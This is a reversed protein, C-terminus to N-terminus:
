RCEIADRIEQQAVRGDGSEDIGNESEAPGGCKPDHSSVEEAISLAPARGPLQSRTRLIRGVAPIAEFQARWGSYRLAFPSLVFLMANILVHLPFTIDMFLLTGFHFVILVIGWFRYLQPRFFVLISVLEVFYLGLYMPWGLAPYNIVAAAWMPESGTQIARWAVTIAMAAPAFGGGGGALLEQLAYYCKYVGSLSYFSLILMPALSFATLFHIRGARTIGMADKNVRPLFWFCISVWFWEHLGHNIAGDSNEYAACLLLAVSVLMRVALARWWLLGLLGALLAVHAIATVGADLGVRNLWAVPWLLDLSDISIATTSVTRAKQYLLYATVAYFFSVIIVARDFMARHVRWTPQGPQAGALRQRLRRMSLRWEFMM